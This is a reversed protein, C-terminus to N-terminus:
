PVFASTFEGKDKKDSLTVTNIYTKLAVSKYISYYTTLSTASLDAISSPFNSSTHISTAM